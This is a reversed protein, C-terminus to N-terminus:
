FGCHTDYIFLCMSVALVRKHIHQEARTYFPKHCVARAEETVRHTKSPDHFNKNATKLKCIARSEQKVVALGLLDGSQQRREEEAERLLGLSM